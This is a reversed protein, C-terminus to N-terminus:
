QFKDDFDPLKSNKERLFRAIQAMKKRSFDKANTSIMNKLDFNPSFEVNSSDSTAPTAIM